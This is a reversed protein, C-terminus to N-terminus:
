DQRHHILLGGHYKKEKIINGTPAPNWTCTGYASYNAMPVSWASVLLFVFSNNSKQSHGPLRRNLNSTQKYIMYCDPVAADMVTYNKFLKIPTLISIRSTIAKKRLSLAMFTISSHYENSRSDHKGCFFGTFKRPSWPNIGVLGVRSLQRVQVWVFWQQVFPWVITVTFAMSDCTLKDTSLRAILPM